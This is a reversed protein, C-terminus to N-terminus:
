KPKLFNYNISSDRAGLQKFYLPLILLKKRLNMEQIAKDAKVPDEQKLKRLDTIGQEQKVENKIQKILELTERYQFSGLNPIAINKKEAIAKIISKNQQNLIEKIVFEKEPDTFALQFRKAYKRAARVHSHFSPIKSKVAKMIDPFVDDNVKM